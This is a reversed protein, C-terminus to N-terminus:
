MVKGLRYARNRSERLLAEETQVTLKCAECLPMVGYYIRGCRGCVNSPAGIIKNKQECKSAVQGWPVGWFRAAEVTAQEWNPAVVWADTHGECGVEWLITKRKKEAM